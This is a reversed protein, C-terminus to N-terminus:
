FAHCKNRSCCNTKKLDYLLFFFKIWLDNTKRKKLIWLVISSSRITSTWSSEEGIEIEM